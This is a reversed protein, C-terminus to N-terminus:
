CLGKVPTGHSNWSNVFNKLLDEIEIAEHLTFLRNSQYIWVKSDNNFEEPIHEKYDTNM